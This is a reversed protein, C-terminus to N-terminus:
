EFWSDVTESNEEIWKKAFTAPDQKDVALAYTMSSLAETTLSVKALMAAAKPQDAELSTAYSVHLSANDWAVGASSRQLWGPTASPQVIIWEKADYAPEKLIVLDNVAFMSHPTYCFFVINKDQEVAQDVEDLAASEEMIKLTMTTDYGYSRARIKEIQTSGWGEAGIWIDGTGDGDFDFNKAMDPNKLEKLETIGTREATGKTVCMAQTGVAPNPSMRVSKKGDVFQRKLHDLNPLWAEPHVQMSGADMANFVVENSGNQLEVELGLRDELVIKLINATAQVSPWNPVGIVVDAALAVSGNASVAAACCLMQLKSSPM